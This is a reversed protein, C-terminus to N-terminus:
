QLFRPILGVGGVVILYVAVIYNLLKPQFLILVGSILAVIPEVMLEHLNM